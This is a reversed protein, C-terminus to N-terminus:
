QENDAERMANLADLQDQKRLRENLLRITGSYCSATLDDIVTSLRREAAVRGAYAAHLARTEHREIPKTKKCTHM